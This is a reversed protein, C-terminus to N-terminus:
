VKLVERARAADQRIQEVLAQPSSFRMEGRLREVFSVRLREGYLDGDFDFLHAELTRQRDGQFTPNHGVNAVGIRTEFDRAEREVRVAYVGDPVLPAMRPRLNATPFGLTRGRRDGTLVRGEVAYARGLLCAALAVEGASLRTRVETSSVTLGKATVPGVVEVEFGYRPGAEELTRASGRRGQGFNVSHGIIVKLVGLRRVLYEEVFEEPDLAAFSLTFRKLVVTDVGADRIRALRERLSGLPAPARQPALVATPHPYFTIVAAESGCEAAQRVLRSLIEQHGLHVGDFNGLTVIPRRFRTDIAELHRIIRM